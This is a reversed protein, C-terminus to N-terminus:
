GYVRLENIMAEIELKAAFAEVTRKQDRLDASISMQKTIIENWQRLTVELKSIKKEAATKMQTVGNNTYALYIGKGTYTLLQICNNQSM